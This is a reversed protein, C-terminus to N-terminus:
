VAPQASDVDSDAGLPPWPETVLELLCMDANDGPRRGVKLIRTYGGPRHEFRASYETFVKTLLDRDTVWRRAMRIAHVRDALAARLAEGDLQGLSSAPIRKSLTIVSDAIGRVEKARAETTRVRGYRMLSTVLNRFMSTRHAVALSLKRGSKLHRM